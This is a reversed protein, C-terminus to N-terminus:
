EDNSEKVVGQLESLLMLAELPTVKNIDLNQIRDKVKEYSASVKEVYVVKTDLSASTGSLELRELNERARQLISHPLHALRAVNIGYSKDAKGPIVKYLFTVHDDEEHVEVHVNTIGDYLAELQVLEHYHTSFITRCQISANIFELIAQALAMGDYTSTGRGIEDFLILSNKTAKSLAMQAEMMEVMFTSQGMIIDDSAGMRTFIQDVVNLKMTECPVFCGIQAMIVNLAVMRMFTSKGGMNPGTLIVTKLVDTILVDSSIYLHQTLTQQLVPHAGNTIELCQEKVFHPKTYGPLRSIEAFAIMVDLYAIADGIAHITQAHRKVFQTM